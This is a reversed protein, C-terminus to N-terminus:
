TPSQVLGHEYAYATAASRSSLGLKTFINSIHRAVTKESIVLEAAIARNTKGSAVLRLIQVERATLGGDGVGKLRGALRDLRTLDPKAGLRGFVQRAADFEMEAADYDGLERYALGMLVRTLAADYPADVDQWGRWASRLAALAARADGSALQVAGDARAALAGLLPARFREAIEALETAAATAAPRDGAALMIEVCADLLRPRTVPDHADDLARRIAAAAAQINGLTLRLLAHGPEPRHGYASGQRYTENAKAVEGRLRHLEGERYFAAGVAPDVPPRALQEHARRAESSADQWSGHLQLLEARYLLCQGRYPVLDPQSECWRSLASTWEQARRLDFLGQCTEIVACYVIGVVVPSVEDATVAVMADDLFSMGAQADATRTLAQGRGLRSLTGLDTDAFRTAIDGLREFTTFATQYDGEDLQGLAVPLLLYGHEVSEPLGELLRAARALWGSGQAFEGRDILGFGLWFALRAARNPQGLRVAEHHARQQIDADDLQGLLYAATALRELDDLELPTVRDAAILAEYAARWARREFAKRGTELADATTM